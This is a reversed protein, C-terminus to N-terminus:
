CLHTLGAQQKFELRRLVEVARKLTMVAKREVHLTLKKPKGTKLRETETQIESTSATRTLATYSCDRTVGKGDNKYVCM